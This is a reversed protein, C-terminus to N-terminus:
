SEIRRPKRSPSSSTASAPHDDAEGLVIGDGQALAIAPDRLRRQDHHSALGMRMLELPGVLRELEQRDAEAPQDAIDVALDAVIGRQAVPEAIEPRDRCPHQELNLALSALLDIRQM